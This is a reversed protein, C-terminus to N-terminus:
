FHQLASSLLFVTTFDIEFKEAKIFRIKEKSVKRLHHETLVEDVPGNKAKRCESLHGQSRPQSLLSNSAHYAM